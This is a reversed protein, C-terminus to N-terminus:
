KKLRITITQDITQDFNLNNVGLQMQMVQNTVTEIMQGTTNNFLINGSGKSDKLKIKVEAKADAEIQMNPKIGIKDLTTKDKQTTGEYTYTNETVTKGFPTKNETKNTWTKGKTVADNPFVLGSVMSKFSEPTIANGVKDAGPLNKMAKLTAESVKFDKLEGTTLMTGSMEMAGTAKVIQSFIKGVADDPEDKMASDVEIQGTPGDMSLKAHTVKIELKASGDQNVDLIKWTMDMSMNMKTDIEMNMINMTMKMKQDMVYNLKEDKKFKYRLTTQGSAASAVVAVSVLSLLVVKIGYRM